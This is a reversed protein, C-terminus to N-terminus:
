ADHAEGVFTGQWGPKEHGDGDDLILGRPFPRGTYKNVRYCKCRGPSWNGMSSFGATTGPLHVGAIPLGTDRILQEPDIVPQPPQGKVKLARIYLYDEGFESIDLRWDAGGITPEDFWRGNDAKVWIGCLTM